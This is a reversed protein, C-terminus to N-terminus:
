GRVKALLVRADDHFYGTEDKMHSPINGAAVREILALMGAHCELARMVAGADMGVPARGFTRYGGDPLAEVLKIGRPLPRGAADHKTEM